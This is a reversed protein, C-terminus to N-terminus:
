PKSAGNDITRAKRTYAFFIAISLCLGFVCRVLIPSSASLGQSLIAVVIIAVVSAGLLLLLAILIGYGARAKKGALMLLSAVLGFLVAYASYAAQVPLPTQEAESEEQSGLEVQGISELNITLGGTSHPADQFRSTSVVTANTQITSSNWAVGDAASDILDASDSQIGEASNSNTARAVYSHLDIQVAYETTTESVEEITTIGVPPIGTEVPDDMSIAAQFVFAVMGLVIGATVLILDKM